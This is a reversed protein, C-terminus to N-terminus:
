KVLVMKKRVKFPGALLEYFFVGSPFNSADWEVEYSGTQKYENVLEAIESGLVNYIKLTVFESKPIEYKIKTTPNFPNPYNQSLSFNVPANNNNIGSTNYVMKYITGSYVSLYIYGDPGQKITIVPRLANIITHSLVTDYYPPNGLTAKMIGQI